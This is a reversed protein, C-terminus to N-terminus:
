CCKGSSTLLMWSCARLSAEPRAAAAPHQQHIYVPVFDYNFSYNGLASNSTHQTYNLSLQEAARQEPLEPNLEATASIRTRDSKNRCVVSAQIHDSLIYFQQQM